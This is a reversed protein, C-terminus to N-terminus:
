IIFLVQYTYVNHEKGDYTITAVNKDPIIKAPVWQGDLQARGIYIPSGDIDNGAIVATPYIERNVGIDM